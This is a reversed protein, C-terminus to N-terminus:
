RHRHGIRGTAPQGGIDPRERYLPVLDYLDAVAGYEDDHNVTTM